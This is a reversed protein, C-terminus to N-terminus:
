DTRLSAQADEVSARESMMRRLGVLDRARNWALAGVLRGARGYLAVFRGEAPDGKAVVVEDDPHAHGAFQIKRDYQDSWFMPVPAFDRAEDPGALLRQAAHVGQEVANTWHEVRMSEDFLPNFWRAVDGAAVVGPAGTACSSDCVVGDELKLGSSALWGTEPVVGIGVVVLDADLARGDSLRVREVRGDGEFGAVGVGLHLAVGHGRHLDALLQGMQVGVGRQCPVPLPDVM